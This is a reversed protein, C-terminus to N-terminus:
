VFCKGFQILLKPPGTLRIKRTILAMPLTQKNVLFKLWTQSDATIKLDAEGEISDIIKVREKDILVTAQRTEAGTFYFHYRTSM